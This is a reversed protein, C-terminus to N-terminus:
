LEVWSANKLLPDVDPDVCVFVSEDCVVYFATLLVRFRITEADLAVPGVCCEPKCTSGQAAVDDAVSKFGVGGLTVPFDQGDQLIQACAYGSLGSAVAEGGHDASCGSAGTDADVCIGAIAAVVM